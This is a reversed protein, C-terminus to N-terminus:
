RRDEIVVNPTNEYRQNRYEPDDADLCRYIVRSFQLNDALMVKDLSACHKAAKKLVNDQSQWDPLADSAMYTDPGLQATTACGTVMMVVAIGFGIVVALKIMNWIFKM